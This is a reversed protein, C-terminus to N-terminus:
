TGETRRPLIEAFPSDWDPAMDKGTTFFPQFVQALHKQSIGSGTDAVEIFVGANGAHASHGASIRLEGGAPMADLSNHCLNLMVQKIQDRDAYAATTPSCSRMVTIQQTM